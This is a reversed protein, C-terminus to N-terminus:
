FGYEADKRERIAAYVEALTITDDLLREIRLHVDDDIIEGRQISKEEIFVYTPVTYAKLYTFVPKFHLEPVLSHRASGATIVMSVVTEALGDTPLLDLVNKLAGPMSAQYIPSTVVVIDADMLARAVAATDGTYDLYNRGDSFQITLGSLDILTTTHDPYTSVLQQEISRAVTRTRTGAAAGSLVVIKM